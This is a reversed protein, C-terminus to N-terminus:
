PCDGLRCLAQRAAAADTGRPAERLYRRYANRAGRADGLRGERLQALMFLARHGVASRGGFWAAKGYAEGAKAYARQEEHSEGIM